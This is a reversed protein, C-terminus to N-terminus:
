RDIRTLQARLDGERGAMLFDNCDKLGDPYDLRVVNGRWGLGAALKHAEKEEGKDPIIYIPKRYADLWEPCFNIKGHTPTVVPYRLKNLTLADFIGYVVVIFKGKDLLRWDPVYMTPAHNCWYKTGTVEQVHPASRYVCTVFNSDKDTVPITYWGRFYGIEAIEVCDDLGRTQLYYQWSTFQLLDLHAQYCMYEETQYDDCFRPANFLTRTEPHITVAQGRVKNYLMLWNGHRNCGLCKFWGDKFVLLSPASDNHFPCKAAAYKSYEHVNQLANLIDNYTLMASDQPFVRSNLWSNLSTNDVANM